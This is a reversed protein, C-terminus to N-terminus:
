EDKGYAQDRAARLERILHNLKDRDLDIFRGQWARQPELADNHDHGPLYVLTTDVAAADGAWETTALQVGMGRQWHLELRHPRNDPEPTGDFSDKTRDIPYLYHKPM